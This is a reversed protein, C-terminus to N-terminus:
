QQIVEVTGGFTRIHPTGTISSLTWSLVLDKNTTTDITIPTAGSNDVHATEVGTTSTSRETYRMEAVATGTAGITRITIGADLSYARNTNLTTSATFTPTALLQTGAVGGWRIRPTFTIGTTGNDVNGAIHIRFTTGIVCANAPVTYTIHAQEAVATQDVTATVISVGGIRNGNLYYGGSSNITGAGKDTFAGVMMGTGIRVRETTGGDNSFRINSGSAASVDVDGNNNGISLDNVGIIGAPTYFPGTVALVGSTSGNNTQLVIAAGAGTDTPTTSPNQLIFATLFNGSQNLIFGGNAYLGMGYKQADVANGANDGVLLNNTFTVAGTPPSSWTGDGRWYHTSDAGAGNNMQTIAINGTVDTFSLPGYNQWKGGASSYRLLQTDAIGSITVDSLASLSGGPVSQNTWQSTGSNYMLAQQNTPSTITVDSLGNLNTVPPRSGQGFASVAALLFAILICNSKM